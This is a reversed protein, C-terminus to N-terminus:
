GLFCLVQLLQYQGTKKLNQSEEFVWHSFTFFNRFKGSAYTKIFKRNFTANLHVPMILYLISTNASKYLLDATFTESVQHHLTATEKSVLIM